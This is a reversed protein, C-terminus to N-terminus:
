RRKNQNPYLSATGKFYRAFMIEMLLIRKMIPSSKESCSGKGNIMRYKAQPSLSTRSPYTARLVLVWLSSPAFSSEMASKNKKVTRVAAIMRHSPFRSAAKKGQSIAMIRIRQAFRAIAAYLYRVKAIKCVQPFLIVPNRKNAAGGINIMERSVATKQGTHTKAAKDARSSLVIWRVELVSSRLLCLMKLFYCAGTWAPAQESLIAQYSMFASEEKGSLIFEIRSLRERSQALEKEVELKRNKLVGAVSRGHQVSLIENISLGAQRLAIIRHLQLLQETGYFRYGTESDVFAPHPLGSEDYYRLTKVTTKTMKSFEGIRFM